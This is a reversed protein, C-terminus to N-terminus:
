DGQLPILGEDMMLKKGEPSLVFDIFQMSLGEPKAKAVLLFPRYLSYNGELVNERVAAVGNLKVAKVTQDVLGLSIFGVSDPDGAVIQRVAGNSNQVIAKPTIRFSDGMVLDEFASRTGSGEERAIVHIKAPTGGLQSWNTIEAAYIGCVQELSLDSVPNKPNVIVALGDKAIVVSWLREDEKLDRSSMGLDAAGTEAATIGASSGGGQVDVSNGPHQIAFEEALLEIYPQVSTSGAVVVGSDSRGSCSATLCVSLALVLAVAALTMKKHKCATM